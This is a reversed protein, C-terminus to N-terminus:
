FNKKNKKETWHPFKLWDQREFGAEKEIQYQINEVACLACHENVSDAKLFCQVVLSFLIFQM